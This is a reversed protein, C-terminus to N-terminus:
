ILFPLGSALAMQPPGRCGPSPVSSVGLDLLQALLGGLNEARLACRAPGPVALGNRAVPIRVSGPPRSSSMLSEKLRTVCQGELSLAWGVYTWAAGESSFGERAGRLGLCWTRGSVDWLVRQAQLQRSRTTHATGKRRNVELSKPRGQCSGNM